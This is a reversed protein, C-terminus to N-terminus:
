CARPTARRRWLLACGLALWGWLNAHGGHAAHCGSSAAPTNNSPPPSPASNNSPLPAVATGNSPLPAVTSNSPLPAAVATSNGAVPLAVTPAEALARQIPTASIAVPAPPWGDPAHSGPEIALSEIPDAIVEGPWLDHRSEWMSEATAFRRAIARQQSTDTCGRHEVIYQVHFGNEGERVRQRLAPYRWRRTLRLPAAQRLTLDDNADTGYRHRIRSLTWRRGPERGVIHWDVTRIRDHEVTMGFSEAARSLRGPVVHAYETIAAGPNRRFLEDTVSTYLEAFAGRANPRMRIDTPATLNTRNAVEYRGEPSLVYLLLEQEGPSNLTGLRVPVRLEDSEYEIQIPSLMMMEGIRQARQPDVHFLAFRHGSEIYGRLMTEAVNPLELGRERLFALLGTSQEAGLLTVDYEDVPWEDQIEVGFDEQLREAETRTRGAFGDGGGESQASAGARMPMRPCPPWVHRVRPATEGDLRRFLTGSVTRVAERNIASPIPVVMSLDTAPGRYAAEITLVTRRGDRVLVVASAPTYSPDATINRQQTTTAPVRPGLMCFCTARVDTPVFLLLLAALLSVFALQRM